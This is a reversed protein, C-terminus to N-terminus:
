LDKWKTLTLSISFPAKSFDFAAEAFKPKSWKPKLNNSFAYPETPIGFMNKDMKGNDNEDHYAAIAYEGYSLDDIVLADQTAPLEKRIVFQGDKPFKSPDDYIAIYITGRESQIGNFDVLLSGKVPPLDNAFGALLLLLQLM